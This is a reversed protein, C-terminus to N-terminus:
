PIMGRYFCRGPPAYLDVFPLYTVSNSTFPEDFMVWQLVTWNIFDQTREVIVWENELDFREAFPLANTFCFFSPSESKQGAAAASPNPDPQQPISTYIIDPRYYHYFSNTDEAPLTRPKLKSARSALTFLGLLLVFVTFLVLAGLLFGGQEYRTACLKIQM